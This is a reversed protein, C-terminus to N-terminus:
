GGLGRLASQRVELRHIGDGVVLDDDVMSFGHGKAVTLGWGIWRGSVLGGGTAEM